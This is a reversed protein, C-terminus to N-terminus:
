LSCPLSRTKIINAIFVFDCSSDNGYSLTWWGKTGEMCASTVNTGLSITDDTDLLCFTIDM